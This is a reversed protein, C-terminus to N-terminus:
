GTYLGQERLVSKLEAIEGEAANLIIRIQEIADDELWRIVEKHLGSYRRIERFRQLQIRVPSMGGSGQKEM